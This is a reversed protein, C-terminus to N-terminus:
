QPPKKKGGSSRSPQLTNTRGSGSSSGGSGGGGAGSSGSSSGPKNAPISMNRVSERIIQRITKLFANRFESTSFISLNQFLLKKDKNLVRNRVYM